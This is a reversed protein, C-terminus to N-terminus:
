QPDRKTVGYTADIERATAADVRGTVPIKSARQFGKVRRALSDGYEGTVKQGFLRQVAAVCDGNAGPGFERGPYWGAEPPSQRGRPAEPADATPAAATLSWLADWTDHDVAGTLPLGRRRQVDLAARQTPGGYTGTVPMDRDLHRHYQRQWHWLHVQDRYVDGPHSRLDGHSPGFYHGDPLPFNPIGEESM